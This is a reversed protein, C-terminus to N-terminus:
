PHNEQRPFDVPAVDVNREYPTLSVAESRKRWATMAPSVMDDFFYVGKEERLGIWENTHKHLMGSQGPESDLIFRYGKRCVKSASVLAKHVPAVRFNMSRHLGEETVIPLVRFGEDQVLSGTATKYSRPEEIQMPYDGGLSKPAASVAAGSDLTFTVNRCNKGNGTMVITEFHACVSDALQLTRQYMKRLNMLVAQVKAKAVSARPNSSVTRKWTDGNGVIIATGMLHKAHKGSAVKAKEKAMMLKAKAQSAKRARDRAMMVRAVVRAVNPVVQRRIVKRDVIAVFVRRDM